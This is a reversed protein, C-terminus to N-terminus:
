VFSIRRNCFETSVLREVSRGMIRKSLNGDPLFDKPIQLEAVRSGPLSEKPEDRLFIAHHNSLADALRGHLQGNLPGM